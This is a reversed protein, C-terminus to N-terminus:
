PPLVFETEQSATSISVEDAGSIGLGISPAQPDSENDRAQEPRRRKAPTDPSSTDASRKKAKRPSGSHASMDVDSKGRPLKAAKSKSRSRDEQTAVSNPSAVATISM